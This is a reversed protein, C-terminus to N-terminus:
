KINIKDKNKDTKGRVKVRQKKTKGTKSYEETKPSDEDQEEDDDVENKFLLPKALNESDEASYKYTKNKKSKSSQRKISRNVLPYEERIEPEPKTIETSFEQNAGEAGSKKAFGDSSKLNSIYSRVREKELVPPSINGGYEDNIQGDINQQKDSGDPIDSGVSADQAVPTSKTVISPINLIETEPTYEITISTGVLKDKEDFEFADVTLQVIYTEDIPKTNVVVKPEVVSQGAEEKGAEEPIGQTAVTSKDVIKVATINAAKNIIPIFLIPKPDSGSAIAKQLVNYSQNNMTVTINNTDIADIQTKIFPKLQSDKCMNPLGENYLGYLVFDRDINDKNELCPSTLSADCIVNTTNLKAIKDLFQVTGIPTAENYTDLRQIFSEIVNCEDNDFPRAKKDGLKEFTDKINTFINVFNESASGPIVFLAAELVGNYKNTVNNTEKKINKIIEDIKNLVCEKQATFEEKKHIYCKRNYLDKYKYYILKLANSDIFALAPTNNRYCSVNFVCFVAILMKDYFDKVKVKKMKDIILQVNKKAPTSAPETIKAYKDLNGFMSTVYNYFIWDIISSTFVQKKDKKMKMYETFTLDDIKSNSNEGTFCRTKSPCYDSLCDTYFEPSYFVTNRNKVAMIDNFNLRLNELSENIFQGEILRHSCIPAISEYLTLTREIKKMTEFLFDHFDTNKFNYNLPKYNDGMYLNKEYPSVTSLQKFARGGQFITDEKEALLKFGKEQLLSFFLDQLNLRKRPNDSGNDESINSKTIQSNITLLVYNISNNGSLPTLFSKNIEGMLNCIANANADKLGLMRELTENNISVKSFKEMEEKIKNHLDQDSNPNQVGFYKGNALLNTWFMAKEPKDLYMHNIIENVKDIITKVTIPIMDIPTGKLKCQESPPSSTCIITANKQIVNTIEEQTCKLVFFQVKQDKNKRIDTNYTCDRLLRVLEAKLDTIRKEKNISINNQLESINDQLTTIEATLAAIESTIRSTEAKKKAENENYEAMSKAYAEEIQRKNAAIANASGKEIGEIRVMIAPPLLSNANDKTIAKIQELIAQHKMIAAKLGDQLVTKADEANLPYTGNIFEKQDQIKKEYEEISSKYETLKEIAGDIDSDTIEPKESCEKLQIQLGRIRTELEAIATTLDKLKTDYENESDLLSFKMTFQPDTIQLGTKNYEEYKLDDIYQQDLQLLVPLRISNVEISYMKASDASSAAYTNREILFQSTPRMGPFITLQTGPTEIFITDPLTFEWDLDNPKILIDPMNHVIANIRNNGPYSNNNKSNEVLQDLKRQDYKLANLLKKNEDTEFVSTTIDDPLIITGRTNLFRNRDTVSALTVGNAFKLNFNAIDQELVPASEFYDFILKQDSAKVRVNPSLENGTQKISLKELNKQDKLWIAFEIQIKAKNEGNIRTKNVNDKWYKMIDSYTTLKPTGEKFVINTIHGNPSSRTQYTSVGKAGNVTIKFSLFPMTLDVDAFKSLFQFFKDRIEDKDEKSKKEDGYFIEILYDIDNPSYTYSINYTDDGDDKRKNTKTLLLVLWSYDLNIDDNMELKYDSIVFNDDYGIGCSNLLNTCNIQAYEKNFKINKNFDIEKTMLELKAKILSKLEM